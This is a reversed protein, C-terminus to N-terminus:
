ALRVACEYITRATREWTFRAARALGNERLREALGPSELVTQLKDAMDQASLPDFLVAADGAIEPLSSVSSCAVPAGHLMAELVPLGFGEYLSPCALLRCHQYLSSLRADSVRNLLTVRSQLGDAMVTRVVRGLQEESGSGVLVLKLDQGARVRAFSHILRIVNKHAAHSGVYLIFPVFQRAFDTEDYSTSIGPGCFAVTTKRRPLLDLAALDENTSSSDTFVHDAQRLTQLGAWFSLKETIPNLARVKLPTLDHVVAMTPLSTVVPVAPTLCLLADYSQRCYARLRTLVWTLRRIRFRVSDPIEIARGYDSFLHPTPTLITLQCHEALRPIIRRIYLSIGVNATTDFPASVLCRM